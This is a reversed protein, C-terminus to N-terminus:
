ADADVETVPPLSIDLSRKRELYLEYASPASNSRGDRQYAGRDHEREDSGGGGGGGDSDGGSDGGSSGRFPHVFSKQKVMARVLIITNLVLHAGQDTGADAARGAGQGADETILDKLEESVAPEAPFVVEQSQIKSYLGLINEDHFPLRGYVFSFLTIGM